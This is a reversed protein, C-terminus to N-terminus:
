PTVRVDGLEGVTGAGANGAIEEEPVVEAGVGSADVGDTDGAGVVVSEVAEGALLAVGAAVSLGAGAIFGAAVSGFIMMPGTGGGGLVGAGAGSLEVFAAGAGVSEVVAGIAGEDVM